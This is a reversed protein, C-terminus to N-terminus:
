HMNAAHFSFMHGALMSSVARLITRVASSRVAVFLVAGRQQGGARSVIISAAGTASSDDAHRVVVAM